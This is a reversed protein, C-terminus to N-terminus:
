VAGSSISRAVGNRGISLTDLYRISAGEIMKASADHFARGTSRTWEPGDEGAAVIVAAASAGVAIKALRKTVESDIQDHALPYVGTVRHRNDLTLAIAIKDEPDLVRRGIAVADEVSRVPEHMLAAWPADDPTTKDIRGEVSRLQRRNAKSRINWPKQGGDVSAFGKAGVVVHFPVEIGLTEGVSRMRTTALIDERSPEPEGAPHNHVLVIKKTGLVVANKFVERPHASAGTLSGQSICEVAIPKDNADLHLGWLRERDLDVVDRFIQAVDDASKVNRGAFMGSSARAQVVAMQRRYPVGAALDPAAPDQPSGFRLLGASDRHWRPSLDDGSGSSTPGPPTNRSGSNGDTVRPSPVTPSGTGDPIGRTLWHRRGRRDIGLYNNPSAALKRNSGFLSLQGPATRVAKSLPKSNVIAARTEKDVVAARPDRKQLEGTLEKIRAEIAPISAKLRDLYEQPRTTSPKTVIDRYHAAQEQRQKLEATSKDFDAALDATLVDRAEDVSAFGLQRAKADVDFSDGTLRSTDGGLIRIRRALEDRVRPMLATFDEATWWGPQETYSADAAEGGGTVTSVYQEVLRAFIERPENWYAGLAFKTREVLVAQEPTAQDKQTAKVLRRVTVTDNMRRRADTILAESPSSERGYGREESLFHVTKFNHGSGVHTSTGVSVGAEHDLWHGLEHALAKIPRHLIDNIGVSITRDGGSYLGGAHKLFPHKGNTHAITLDSRRMLDRITPGLVKEIEDMGRAIENIQEATIKKGDQRKVKYGREAQMTRDVAASENAFSTHRGKDYRARADQAKKFEPRQDIVAQPVPEGQSIAKKVTEIYADRWAQVQTGTAGKARREKDIRTWLDAQYQAEQKKRPATESNARKQWAAANKSPEKLHEDWRRAIYDHESVQWHKVPGAQDDYSRFASPRSVPSAQTPQQNEVKATQDKAAPTSHSEPANRVADTATALARATTLQRELLEAIKPLRERAASTRLDLGDFRALTERLQASTSGDGVGALLHALEKMSKLTTEVRAVLEAHSGSRSGTNATEKPSNPAVTGTPTRSLWHAHGRRDTGLYNDPNRSVAGAGPSFLSMQRPDRSLAKALLRGLPVREVVHTLFSLAKGMADGREMRKAASEFLGEKSPSATAFLGGQGPPPLDLALDCYHLLFERIAKASKSSAFTVLLRKQIPTLGSNLLSEQRVFDDVTGGTARIRSLAHVVPPIDGSIDINPPLTDKEAAAKVKALGALAGFIGSELNKVNSDSSETAAVVLNQGDEGQFVHALIAAKLRTVGAPTLKSGNATIMANRDNAPLDKLFQRVVEANRPSGLAQDITQNDGVELAEISAASIRKADTSAQEAPSVALTNRANADDAFRKRAEVEPVGYIHALEATSTTRERVVIPDHIGEFDEPSLGFREAHERQLAQLHRMKEPAIKAMEQVAMMRGNGSEVKLDPGVIPLGRDLETNGNLFRLPNFSRAIRQVQEVSASRTRARPQVEADNVKLDALSAVRYRYNIVVGTEASFASGDAGYGKPRPEAKTKPEDRPVTPKADVVPSASRKSREPVAGSARPAAPRGPAPAAITAYREGKPPVRVYVRGTAKHRAIIAGKPREEGPALLRWTPQAHRSREGYVVRGTRSLYYHGGRSEPRQVSRSKAKGFLLALWSKALPKGDIRDHIWQEAESEDEFPGAQHRAPGSCAPCHILVQCDPGGHDSSYRDCETCLSVHWSPRSSLAKALSGRKVGGPAPTVKANSAGGEPRLGSGKPAYARNPNVGTAGDEEWGTLLWTLRQNFRTLSLVAIYKGDSIVARHADVSHQSQDLLKGNAIVRPMARASHEGHKAIIKSVGFGGKHKPPVGPEGWVFSVAGLIPHHMANPVDRQDRIVDDMSAEGRKIEAEADYRRWHKRGRRDQGLHNGPNDRISAKLMLAGLAKFMERLPRRQPAIPKTTDHHELWAKFEDITLATIAGLGTWGPSYNRLYVKRADDESVCGLLVKHEDFTGNQKVQDVVFVMESEPHPGIFVDVSDGDSGETGSFYGYHDKLETRWPKGDAGVGSRYSGAPNEIAVDLGHLRMRGVKYNGAQKQARTPQPLDNLPSTAAEHAQTDVYAALSKTLFGM